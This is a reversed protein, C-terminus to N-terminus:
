GTFVFYFLILLKTKNPNELMHVLLSNKSAADIKISFFKHLGDHQKEMHTSTNLLRSLCLMHKNRGNNDKINAAKTKYM